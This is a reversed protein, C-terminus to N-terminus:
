QFVVFNAGDDSRSQVAQYARPPIFQGLMGKVSHSIGESQTMKLGMSHNNEIFRGIDNKKHGRDKFTIQMTTVGVLTVWAGPKKGTFTSMQFEAQDGVDLHRLPILLYHSMTSLSERFLLEM